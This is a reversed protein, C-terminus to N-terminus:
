NAAAQQEAIFRDIAGRSFKVLRGIKVTEIQRTKALSHLKRPSIALLAAAERYDLLLPTVGEPVQRKKM